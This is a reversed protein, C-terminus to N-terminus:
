RSLIHVVMCYDGSIMERLVYYMSTADLVGLTICQVHITLMENKKKNSINYINYSYVYAM